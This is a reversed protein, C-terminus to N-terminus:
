EVRDVGDDLLKAPQHVFEELQEGPIAIIAKSPRALNDAFNAVIEIIDGDKRQGHREGMRAHDNGAHKQRTGNWGDRHPWESTHQEVPKVAFPDHNGAIEHARQHREAEDESHRRM